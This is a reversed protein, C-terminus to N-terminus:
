VIVFMPWLTCVVLFAARVRAHFTPMGKSSRRPPRPLAVGANAHSHAAERRMASLAVHQRRRHLHSGEDPSTLETGLAARLHLSRAPLTERV